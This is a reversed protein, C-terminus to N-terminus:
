CQKERGTEVRICLFDCVVRVNQAATMEALVQDEDENLQEAAAVPAPAPEDTMSVDDDVPDSKNTSAM